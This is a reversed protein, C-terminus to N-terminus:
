LVVEKQAIYGYLGFASQSRPPLRRLNKNIITGCLKTVFVYRAVGM